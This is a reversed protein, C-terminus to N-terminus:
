RIIIYNITWSITTGSPDAGPPLAPLVAGRFQSVAGADLWVSGSRRLLRASQVRGDPAVILEVTATGEEGVLAANPPYRRNDEWWRRVANRWDTGVPAGRVLIEPEPSNRGPESWRGPSLDLGPRRGAPRPPAPQLNRAEPLLLGPLPESPRPRAPRPPATLAAERQPPPPPPLDEPRPLEAEATRPEEPRPPPAPEDLPAWPVEAAPPEVDARQPEPTPAPEPESSPPNTEPEAPRDPAGGEFVLAYAPPPLTEPPKERRLSAM